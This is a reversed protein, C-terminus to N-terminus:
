SKLSEKAILYDLVDLLNPVNGTMVLNTIYCKTFGNVIVNPTTTIEFALTLEDAQKVKNVINFSSFTTKFEDSPINYEKFLKELKEEHWLQLGKELIGTFIAEDISGTKDLIEAAYFAQALNRLLKKNFTVPIRYIAVNNTQKNAWEMFDKNLRKCAPCGYNLFMIVQVKNPDCNKFQRVKINNRINDSMKRYSIGSKINNSTQYNDASEAQAVACAILCNAFYLIIIKKIFYQM